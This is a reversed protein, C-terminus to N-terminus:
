LKLIEDSVAWSMECIMKLVEGEAHGGAEGCVRGAEAPEGGADEAAASAPGRVEEEGTSGQPLCLKQSTSNM